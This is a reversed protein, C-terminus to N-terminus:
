TNITRLPVALWSARGQPRTLIRLLPAATDPWPSTAVEPCPQFEVHFRDTHREIWECRMRENLWSEATDWGRLDPFTTSAERFEVVWAQDAGTTARVRIVPVLTSPCVAKWGGRSVIWQVLAEKAAEPANEAWTWVYLGDISVLHLQLM